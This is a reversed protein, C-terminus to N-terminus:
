GEIKVSSSLDFTLVDNKKLNKLESKSQAYINGSILFCVILITGNLILYKIKTNM